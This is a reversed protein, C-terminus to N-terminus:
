DQYNIITQNSTKISQGDIISRQQIPSITSTDLILTQRDKEMANIKERNEEMKRVLVEEERKFLNYLEKKHEM